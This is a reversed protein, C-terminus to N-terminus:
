LGEERVEMRGWMGVLAKYDATRVSTVVLPSVMWDRDGGRVFGKAKLAAMKRSVQVKGIAEGMEKQSMQIRNGAGAWRVLHLFFEIEGASLGAALLRGLGQDLLLSWTGGYVEVPNERRSVKLAKRGGDVYDVVEDVEYM